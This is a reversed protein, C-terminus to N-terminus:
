DLECGSVLWFFSSLVEVSGTIESGDARVSPEIVMSSESCSLGGISERCIGGGINLDCSDSGYILM